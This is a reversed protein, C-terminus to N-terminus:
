RNLQEPCSFIMMYNPYAIKILLPFLYKYAFIVEPYLRSRINPRFNFEEVESFRSCMQINFM